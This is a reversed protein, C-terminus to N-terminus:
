IHINHDEAPVSVVIAYVLEALVSYPSSHSQWRNYTCRIYQAFKEKPSSRIPGVHQMIQMHM